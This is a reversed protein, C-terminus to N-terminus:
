NAPQFFVESSSFDLYSDAENQCGKVSCIGQASGEDIRGNGLMSRYKRLCSPCIEAWYSLVDTEGSDDVYESFDDFEIYDVFDGHEDDHVCRGDPSCYVMEAAGDVDNPNSYMPPDNAEHWAEDVLAELEEIWSDFAESEFPYEFTKSFEAESGEVISGVSVTDNTLTIWAGCETYKYLDHELQWSDAAERYACLDDINTILM